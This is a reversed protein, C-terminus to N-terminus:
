GREEGRLRDFNRLAEKLDTFAEQADFGTTTPDCYIRVLAIMEDAAKVEALNLVYSIGAFFGDRFGRTALDGQAERLHVSDAKIRLDLKYLFAADEAAKEDDRNTM